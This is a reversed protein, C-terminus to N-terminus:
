IKLPPKRGCSKKANNAPPPRPAQEFVNAYSWQRVVFSVDVFTEGAPVCENADRIRVCQRGFKSRAIDLKGLGQFVSIVTQTTELEFVSVAVDQKETTRPSSSATAGSAANVSIVAEDMAGARLGTFM